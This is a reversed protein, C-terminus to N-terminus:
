TWSKETPTTACFETVKCARSRSLFDVEKQWGALGDLLKIRIPGSSTLDLFEQTASTPRFPATLFRVQTAASVPYGARVLRETERYARGPVLIDFYFSYVGMSLLLVAAVWQPTALGMFYGRLAKCRTQLCHTM